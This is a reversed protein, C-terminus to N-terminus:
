SIFYWRTHLACSARAATHVQREANALQTAHEKSAYDCSKSNNQLTTLAAEADRLSGQLAEHRDRSEVLHAGYSGLGSTASVIRRTLPSTYIRRRPLFDSLNPKPALAPAYTRPHLGALRRGRRAPRRAVILFASPLFLKEPRAQAHRERAEM